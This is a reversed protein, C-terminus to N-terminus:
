GIIKKAGHAGTPKVERQAIRIKEQRKDLQLLDKGAMLIFARFIQYGRSIHQPIPSFLRIWMSPNAWLQFLFNSYSDLGFSGYKEPGCKSFSKLLLRFLVFPAITAKLWVKQFFSIIPAMSMSISSVLLHSRNSPMQ